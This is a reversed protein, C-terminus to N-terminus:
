YFPSEYLAEAITYGQFCIYESEGVPLLPLANTVNFDSVTQFGSNKEQDPLAFAALIARVTDISLGSKTVIEDTSFVFAPLMTWQQAPMNRLGKLTATLKENQLDFISAVVTRADNITFEKNAVLWENDPSYKPVALDRYQFLYASEGGYFIAERLFVGKTLPNEPAEGALAQRFFDHAPANMSQHLEQMLQDTRDIMEQVKHPEPIRLDNSTKVLLGVLTSIETRLLREDSFQKAIDASDVEDKIPIVNDRFCIAAIAHAYGPSSALRALDAFVEIETRINEVGPAMPSLRVGPRLPRM